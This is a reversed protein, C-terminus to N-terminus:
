KPSKHPLIRLSKEAVSLNILHRAVGFIEYFLRHLLLTKVVLRDIVASFIYVPLSKHYRNSIM